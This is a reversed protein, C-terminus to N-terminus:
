RKATVFNPLRKRTEDPMENPKTENIFEITKQLGWNKVYFAASKGSGTAKFFNLVKGEDSPAMIITGALKADNLSKLFEVINWLGVKNSLFSIRGIGAYQIFTGAFKTNRTEDLLKNILAFGDGQSAAEKLRAISSAQLLELLAKESNGLHLKLRGYEREGLENFLGYLQKAKKGSAKILRASPKKRVPM